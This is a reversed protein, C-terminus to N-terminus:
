EEDTLPEEKGIKNVRINIYVFAAYFSIFLSTIGGTNQWDGAFYMVALLLWHLTGVMAGVSLTLYSPKFVGYSISLGSVFASVGWAWEPGVKAMVSYLEAM